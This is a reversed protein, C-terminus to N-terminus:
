FDVETEEFGNKNDFYAINYGLIKAYIKEIDTLKTPFNVLVERDKAVIYIGEKGEVYKFDKILYDKDLIRIYKNTFSLRLYSIDKIQEFDDHEFSSVTKKRSTLVELQGEAEYSKIIEDQSIKRIFKMATKLFFKKTDLCYVIEFGALIDINTEIEKKFTVRTKPSDINLAEMVAKLGIGNKLITNSLLFNIVAKLRPLNYPISLIKKNISLPIEVAYELIHYKATKAPIEIKYYNNETDLTYGGLLKHGREITKGSSTKTTIIIDTDRLDGLFKKVSKIAGNPTSYGLEKAIHTLNTYIYYTGDALPNSVGLNDTFLITLIDKHRQHLYKNVSIKMDSGSFIVKRFDATGITEDKRDTTVTPYFLNKRFYEVPIAGKKSKESLNAYEVKTLVRSHDSFDLENLEKNIGM